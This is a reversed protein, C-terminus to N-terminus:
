PKRRGPRKAAAKAPKSAKPATPAPAAAKARRAAAPKAPRDSRPRTGPRIRQGLALLRDATLRLADDGGDLWLADCFRSLLQMQTVVSDLQGPKLTLNHLTAGYSAALADFAAEGLEDAQGLRGDLLAEVLVAESQKVASWPNGDHAFSAEADGRCQRALDIARAKDAAVSQAPWPLLALLALRNLALYSDFQGTGPHGEDRAYAEVSHRLAARMAAADADRQASDQTTLVSRAKVSALRKYASGLLASREPNYLPGGEAAVLQDLMRLREIALGILKEGAPAGSDQAAKTKPASGDTAQREGLRAEVNALKEIDHIPVTGERDEAQVAALLATRAKDFQGLDIWTSGIASQLGPTQLWGPQCRKKLLSELAAVQARQDRDNAVATRRSLEARIRALQDLLEEPSAFPASADGGSGAARPEARWAPDGYAQFAGWTIDGPNADYVAKRAQFVADGFPRRQLLLEEYFAEGFRQAGKDNVAWGAVLVCRVGIDILERAISAALKNGQRGVDVTGLHCCNLFVVDPVVEMAAIEAATILLGDSLLVGSRFRGDAHRLGFVGHASIHLMRWPRHFLAALVNSARESYTLSTVQYGLASLLAAVSEAEAKAGPLDDPDSAYQAEKTSFAEKFGQTSPNGIVLASRDINQRVHRRYQASSLQRVSAMRLALPRKDGDTRQPDDALMLEWPLNATTEDVVLVVQELQRGLDKFDHPMMLQFLMRGFDEDWVTSHIQQRM